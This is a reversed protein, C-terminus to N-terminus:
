LQILRAEGGGRGPGAGPGGARDPHQAGHLPGTSAALGVRREVDSITKASFGVEVFLDLASDLIREHTSAGGSPSGPKSGAARVSGTM